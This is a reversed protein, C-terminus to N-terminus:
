NISTFKLVRIFYYKDTYLATLEKPQYLLHYLFFDLLQNEVYQIQLHWGDPGRLSQIILAKKM